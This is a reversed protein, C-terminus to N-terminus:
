DDDDAATRDGVIAGHKRFVAELAEVDFDDGGVEDFGCITHVAKGKVILVLSPIMWIKLRDVLFPSKEANVKIFRTGLHKKCLRSLHRDFIECRWTTPRYFHAVLRDPGKVLEFFEKQDGLESYTGNGLALWEKQQSVSKKLQAMRRERLAELDDEDMKDLQAIKDDIADEIAQAAQVVHDELQKQIAEEMIIKSALLNDEILDSFNTCRGM